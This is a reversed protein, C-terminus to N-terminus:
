EEPDEKETTEAQNPPEESPRGDPTEAEGPEVAEGELPRPLYALACHDACFPRRLAAIAGCMLADAGADADAVIWRCHEPGIAWQRVGKMAPDPNSFEFSPAAPMSPVEDPPSAIGAAPEAASPPLVAAPSANRESSLTPLLM